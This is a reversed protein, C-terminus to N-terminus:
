NNQGRVNTVAHHPSLSFVESHNDMATDMASDVILTTSQPSRASLSVSSLHRSASM